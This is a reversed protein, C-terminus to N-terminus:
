LGLTAAHEKAFSPALRTSGTSGAERLLHTWTSQSVSETDSWGTIMDDVGMEIDEPSNDVWAYGHNGTVDAFPELYADNWGVPSGLMEALTMVNGAPNRALKPLMLSHGHYVAKGVDPANTWLLPVGFTPAVGIPGSTTAVMFRSSAILYPDLWSPKAEIHAIDVVGDMALPTMSADGLRFVTGGMSVIKRIAPLYTDIRANRGYGPRDLGNERVHLTVVFDRPEIGRDRLFRDGRVRDDPLLELLPPLGRREWEIAFKNHASVLDMPGTKTRVTQISEVIPWLSWEMAAGEAAALDLVQFYRKWYNLYASNAAHGAFVWYSNVPNEQLMSMRARLALGFSMHGISGIIQRGIIRMELPDFGLARAATDEVEDANKLFGVAREWESAHYCADAERWLADRSSRM